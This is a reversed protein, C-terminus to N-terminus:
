MALFDQVRADSCVKAGELSVLQVSDLLGKEDGLRLEGFTGDTPGETEIIKKEGSLTFVNVCVKRGTAFISELTFTQKKVVLDLTEGVWLFKRDLLQRKSYLEGDPLEFSVNEGFLTELQDFNLVSPEGEGDVVRVKVTPNVVPRNSILGHRYCPPPGELQVRAATTPRPPTQM